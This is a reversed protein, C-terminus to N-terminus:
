TRNDSEKDKNEEESELDSSSIAVEKLHKDNERQGVIICQEEDESSEIVIERFKKQISHEM